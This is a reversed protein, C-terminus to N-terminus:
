SHHGPAGTADRGPEDPATSVYPGATLRGRGLALTAGVGGLVPLAGAVLLQWPSALGALAGALGAGAANATLKAGAGLAFVQSRVAEPAGQHRVLMLAGFVPGNFLGSIAFWGALALSSSVAAGCMVPVGTAVLGITVVAAALRPPAPRWTWLLSGVSAGVAIVTLLWGADSPDGNRTAFVAAVVPLMGSGIQAVSTAATVTGLVRSGLVARVGAALEEVWGRGHRLVARRGLPLATVLVGGAVACAALVYTAAAPSLAGAILATVAPGAIGAMNYTLSDIGFARPLSPADVLRVVLSSLAGTVAPGCCGGLLLIALVVPLPTRGLGVATTALSLGFIVAGAAVVVHSRRARDALSGVVPAAVMHPVLVTAVLLGGIAANDTRELALLALGVRAGEDALRVLVAAVVYVSFRPTM